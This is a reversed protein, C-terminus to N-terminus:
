RTLVPSQLESPRRTVAIVRENRSLQAYDWTTIPFGERRAPPVELPCTAAGLPMVPNHRWMVNFRLGAVGRRVISFVNYHRPRVQGYRLSRLRGTDAFITALRSSKDSRAKKKREGRRLLPSLVSSLPLEALVRRMEGVREEMRHLLPLTQNRGQRAARYRRIGNPLGIPRESGGASAM